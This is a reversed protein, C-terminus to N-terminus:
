DVQKHQSKTWAPTCYIFLKFNGDWYFKEGKDIVIMDETKIEYSQGEIFVKGSGEIIYVIEKCEENVAQGKNPYKGVVSVVAGDLNSDGLDFEFGKCNESNSYEHAQERKLIKM